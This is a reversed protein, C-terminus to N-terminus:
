RHVIRLRSLTSKERWLRWPGWTWLFYEQLTMTTHWRRTKLNVLVIQSKYKLLNSIPRNRTRFEPEFNPTVHKKLTMFFQIKKQQIYQLQKDFSKKKLRINLIACKKWTSIHISWFRSKKRSPLYKQKNNHIFLVLTLSFIVYYIYTHTVSKIIVQYFLHRHVTFFQWIWVGKIKVVGGKTMVEYGSSM